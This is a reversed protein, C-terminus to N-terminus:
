HVLYEEFVRPVADFKKEIFRADVRFVSYPGSELGVRVTIVPWMRTRVLVDGVKGEFVEGSGSVFAVRDGRKLCCRSRRLLKSLWKM